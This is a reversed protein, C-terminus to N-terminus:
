RQTPSREPLSPQAFLAHWALMLAGCVLLTDAVNFNPWRMNGIMVLIWDRVAYVPDGDRHAPHNLWTLGHLGLRDYLNGLIGATIGGLAVTLLLDRGAEGYFLWVLIGIAALVSLVAFAVQWGQGIGWLAGENLSTELGVYNRWIWWVRPPHGPRPMGLVAFIWRKTALDLVCGAIAISFFLLYRNLPVARM